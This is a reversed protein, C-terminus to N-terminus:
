KGYMEEFVSEAALAIPERGPDPSLEPQGACRLTALDLVKLNCRIALAIVDIQKVPSEADSVIQGGILRQDTKSFILKVIYPKRERMMSHKSASEQKATIVEIGEKEAEMGTIGAGAISKDFFKTCFSNILPPFKVNFGLINKAIVRGAIVANPRLQGLAPKGTFHSQYEIVDGGAYIDPDSTQLNQDVMLGLRGLKLGADKALEVNCRAGVSIVVMDTNVEEGSALTVSIVNDKGNIAAAKQNLKLQVGKERMFDQVEEAMDKDLVGPMIHERMEVLTVKMGQRSLLYAEEIGIAGAGLLVVKRVRRYNIWNLINVADGSTRLTFVGPLDIGPIPPMVPKAGTALVLKDYPHTGGDATTVIKKQRDIKVATVNVLKIGMETFISDDKYSSDVMVNGCCIYPTACRTLLGKEQPERIITVGLSPRLKKVALAALAGCGSCGIAVVRKIGNMENEHKM